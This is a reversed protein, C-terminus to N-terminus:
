LWSLTSIRIEPLLFSIGFHQYLFHLLLREAYSSVSKNEKEELSLFLWCDMFFVCLYNLSFIEDM